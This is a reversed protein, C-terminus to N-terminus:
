ALGKTCPYFKFESLYRRAQEDEPEDNEAIIDAWYEASVELKSTVEIDYGADEYVGRQVNRAIDACGALHIEPDNSPIKSCVTVLM